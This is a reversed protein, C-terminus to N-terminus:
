GTTSCAVASEDAGDESVIATSGVAYGTPMTRDWSGHEAFLARGHYRAPFQSGAPPARSTPPPEYFRLGLTASHPPLDVVSGVALHADQASTTIAGSSNGSRSRNAYGRDGGSGGGGGYPPCDM